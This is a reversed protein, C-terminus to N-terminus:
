LMEYTTAYVSKFERDGMTIATHQSKSTHLSISVINHNQQQKSPNKTNDPKVSLVPKFLPKAM